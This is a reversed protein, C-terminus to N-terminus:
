NHCLSIDLDYSFTDHNCSFRQQENCYGYAEQVYPLNISANLVTGCRIKASVSVPESWVPWTM